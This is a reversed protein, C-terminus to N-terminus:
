ASSPMRSIVDDRPSPSTYLLCFGNLMLFMEDVPRNIVISRSFQTEKPLLFGGVLFLGVLVLLTILIGRLLKM